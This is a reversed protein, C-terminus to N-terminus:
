ISYDETSFELLIMIVSAGVQSVDPTAAAPIPGKGIVLANDYARRLEFTFTRGDQFNKLYFKANTSQYHTYNSDSTSTTLPPLIALIRDEVLNSSLIFSDTPNQITKATAASTARVNSVVVGRLYVCQPTFGLSFRSEFKAFAGGDSTGPSNAAAAASVSKVMVLKTNKPICSQSIDRQLSLPFQSM